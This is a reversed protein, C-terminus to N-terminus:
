RILVTFGVEGSNDPITSSLNGATVRWRIAKVNRDFNTPAGGGGSVPTYTWTPTGTNFDNSYEVAITLGTSGADITVSGLKFDVANPVPDTLVVEKAASGGTNTFTIYYNLETGSEQDGTPTVSKRLTLSPASAPIVIFTTPDITATITQAVSVSPITLLFPAATATAPMESTQGINDTKIGAPPLIDGFGTAQNALAGTFGADVKISFTATIKGGTNLNAGSALLDSVAGSAAGTYGTNKTAVTGAGSVVLVQGGTTSITVGTPLQDNIQFNSVQAGLNIYHITYALTDGPTISGTSDADTTLKASKYAQVNVGLVITVTTPDTSEIDQTQTISGTPVTIGAPLGLTTNDVNDTLVGTSLNGATGNAQNPLTGSTGVAITVPIDIKLIDGPKFTVASSLLDSIAGSSAGTYSSNKTAITTGTVTLTQGGTSAIILGTPLIDNMQFTTVDVTGPNKFWLTYTLIDGPTLSGSSDADTTLKVSKYAEVTPIGIINISTPDTTGTTTQPMSGAPVTLNYPASTVIAPLDATSGVNDTLVPTSLGTGTGFAQNNRIGTVGPEVIVPIAVTIIGRAGLTASFLLDSGSGPAAGTYTTASTASTGAGSTTVTQGGTATVSLGAPLPDNIQFSTVSGAGTNVYQLTWTLIDGATITGSSDSDTTLKVSKYATVSPTAAVITVSTPDTTGAQTQTASGTPVTIGAPLGTTASDINDTPIPSLNGASSIAQNPKSGTVGANITVPIDIKLIDGANFSVAASLLDSIAGSSAGTYSINKTASTTGTITITQGGTSAITLGAPLVDNIQFTTVGVTGTNKYWLSYTLMDGPTISGSSDADTTLKVSKYAAVTPSGAITVTTQDITGTITQAVSSVPITLNYPAATVTAPLDTTAGANDTLVGAVPLETGTGKGQNSITGTSGANVTVPITVTIVGGVKLIASAALLDSATGATAGTYSLNKTAVTGAGTVTVTQGGTSVITFGILADIIQFNTIDVTGTNVFQLTYTLTDGATVSISADADTTLKVSKYAVTNVVPTSEYACGANTASGSTNESVSTCAAITGTSTVLSKNQDGGGFVKAQNIVNTTATASVNTAFAFVSTGSTAAIATTSTCTISQPSVTDSNCTWNAAQAGSLIVTGAAGSNVSVGTPLTDKVSTTGFTAVTGVNSVTLSYTMSSGAQVTPPATKSLKLDPLGNITFTTVDVTAAITQTVSSAPVTLNYPAVTIATPLDATIGANDTFVATSLGTGTASAQNVVSGTAGANIKVPITVTITGGVGLTAAAALLNSVTAGIGGTYSLNKTASTGTGAVTVTQAGTATISIGAPLLDTIQFNTASATGTNVYQLTYNLTDGPTIGGSGDADTILKVSKYGTVVPTPPNITVSSASFSTRGCTDTPKLRLICSTLSGVTPPTFTTSLSTPSAFTGGCSSTWIYNYASSGGTVTATVSVTVGSELTTPVTAQVDLGKEIGAQLYFNFYARQAGVQEAITGTTNHAHGGEYMVMGNNANGFARGYAIVAAERPSKSPVDAQTPDWVAITTTPRWSTLPLYVRESGVQTAGDITGIFQMIPDTSTLPQYSFPPTGDNHVLYSVLGTQSLFNMDPSGPTAPNDLNELVSVGHCASWLYGKQTTVFNVLNGHTAWTPDSHPLSYTDDCANLASPTKLSYSTSPIGANTYYPTILSGKDSDVAVLPFATLTEVVPVNPIITTTPGDVIVGMGIWTNIATIVAPTIYEKRIIFPGGRYAKANYTFDTGDKAKTPSIAWEVPVNLNKILDYIFGYPKLGNNVTQTASGMDIIYSGAPINTFTTVPPAPPASMAVAPEISTTANEEMWEDIGIAKEVVPKTAKAEVMKPTASRLKAAGRQATAEIAHVLPAAQLLM